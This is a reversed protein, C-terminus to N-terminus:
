GRHRNRDASRGPASRQAVKRDVEGRLAGVLVDPDVPKEFVPIDAFRLTVPSRDFGTLFVFPIDQRDLDSAIPFSNEGRLKVDLVAADIVDAEAICAIAKSVSPAPGLVIAGQAELDLKLTDALIPEDEVVLIRLGNLETM